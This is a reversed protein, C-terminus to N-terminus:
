LRFVIYLSPFLLSISIGLSIFATLVLSCCDSCLCSNESNCSRSFSEKNQETLSVSRESLKVSVKLSKNQDNPVEMESSVSNVSLSHKCLAPPEREMRSLMLRIVKNVVILIRCDVQLIFYITSTIIIKTTEKYRIPHLSIGLEAWHDPQASLGTNGSITTADNVSYYKWVHHPTIAHQSIDLSASSEEAADGPTALEREGWDGARAARVCRLRSGELVSSANKKRTRTGNLFILM